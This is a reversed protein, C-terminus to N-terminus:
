VGGTRAVTVDSSPTSQNVAEVVGGPDRVRIDVMTRQLTERISREIRESSTDITQPPTSTAVAVDSENAAQAAGFSAPLELSRVSPTISGTDAVSQSVDARVSFTKEGTFENVLNKFTEIPSVIAAVGDTVAEVIGAWLDIFFASVPDWNDMLTKAAIGLVVFPAALLAVPALVLTLAAALAIAGAEGDEVGQVLDDFLGVSLDKYDEMVEIVEDWLFILIGLTVILLLAGGVVLAFTGATVTAVAGVIALTTELVSLVISLAWLAAVFKLVKPTLDVILHLNDKIFRLSDVVAASFVEKNARAWATMSTVIKEVDDRIIFFVRIVISEVTSWFEKIKAAATDRQIAALRATVGESKRLTEQFDRTKKLNELIAIGAAKSNAGFLDSLRQSRKTESLKKTAKDVDTMIDLFDRINGKRDKFSVRLKKLAPQAKTASDTIRSMIRALDKGAKSGKLGTGALTAVSALFQDIDQGTSRFPAAGIKISEFLEEMGVNAMNTTQAMLDATKAYNASKKSLDDTMLGLPGIADSALDAATALDVTAVTALDAFTGLSGMSVHASEGAKAMFELAGAAETGSFETAGSVRLAADALDDFAKTGRLITGSSFKSGANVLTQEVDAGTSVIKALGVAAVTAGVAVARGLGAAGSKIKGIRGNVKGLAVEMKAAAKGVNASMRKTPSSILDVARFIADISFRQAVTLETENRAEILRSM